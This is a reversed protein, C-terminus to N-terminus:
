PHSLGQWDVVSSGLKSGGRGVSLEEAGLGVVLIIVVFGIVVRTYPGEPRVVVVNVEVIGETPLRISHVM